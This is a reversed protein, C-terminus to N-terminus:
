SGTFDTGAPVGPGLFHLWRRRTQTEFNRLDIEPSGGEANKSMKRRM